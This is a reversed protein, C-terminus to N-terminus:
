IAEAQFRQCTTFASLCILELLGDSSESGLRLAAIEADPCVYHLEHLPM